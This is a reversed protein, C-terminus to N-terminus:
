ISAASRPDQWGVGLGLQLQIYASLLNSQASLRSQSADLLRREADLLNIFGSLGEEYRRRALRTAEKAATEAERWSSLEAEANAVFQLSSEVEALTELVSGEFSAIAANLEERAVANQASVNQPNLGPWILRPGVGLFSVSAGTLQHSGSAVIQIRPFAALKAIEVNVGASLASAQAARISPHRRILGDINGIPIDESSPINLEALSQPYECHELVQDIRTSTAISLRAAARTNSSELAPLLAETSRVQQLAQTAELKSGVEEQLRRMTHELTTTQIELNQQALSLGEVATIYEIYASVTEGILSVTIDRLLWERSQADRVAGSEILNLRGFLDVEWSAGLDMLGSTTHGGQSFTRTFSSSPTFFPLKDAHRLRATADLSRKTAAASELNRNQDLTLNVLVTLCGEDIPTWWANLPEDSISIGSSAGFDSQIEDFGRLDLQTPARHACACVFLSMAINTIFRMLHVTKM